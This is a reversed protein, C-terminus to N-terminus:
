PVCAHVANSYEAQLVFAGNSLAVCRPEAECKDALEKGSDDTWTSVFPDTITEMLEHATLSATANAEISASNCGGLFGLNLCGFSGAVNPVFAILLTVGGCSFYSHWACFAPPPKLEAGSYVVVWDGAAPAVRGAHLANCAEAGISQADAQGPTAPPPSLDTFSGGFRTTAVAGRLYQDALALYDSGELNRLLDEQTARLDASWAGPDGWFVAFTRTAPALPGGRDVLDPPVVTLTAVAAGSALHFAGGADAPAQYLGAPTVSGGAAGELLSFDGSGHFQIRGAALLTVAAPDIGTEQAVAVTASAARSPDAASRAAVHCVGDHEPASFTGDPSMAGCDSSWTVAGDQAGTVGASFRLTAGRGLTAALPSIAVSVGSAAVVIEARATRTPDAVSAAILHYTGPMQPAVYLGTADVSGAPGGEAMAWSVRPDAGTASASFQRHGGLELHALAPALAVTVGVAAAAAVRVEASARGGAFTAVVHYTGATPPAQYKGEASIAGAAPGEVLSWVVPGDGTASFLLSGGAQVDAVQPAISVKISRAPHHSDCAAFLLAAALAAGRGRARRPFVSCRM